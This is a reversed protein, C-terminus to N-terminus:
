QGDSEPVAPLRILRSVPRTYMHDKVKVEASRILGDAGPFVRSIEGIPWSARPLQPDVIMVVTGLQIPSTDRQWKSRTQLTPLYHRIFQTWFRDSLVQCTRWHRQGILESDHYLVQPLSPDLRGMLLLNPTIPDPDALDSSVYGLPKSNLMGEIEILVTQLIEEQVVQSGITSKLAAKISRIEREWSGGFHPASPPNFRFTIQHAALQSQLSPHLANFSEQLEKEGGRFNTGQDCLIETPKGRRSVFRRLAMLFSDSTLSSLVEIHIARTTLCKFLLGWRKEIRRGVKVQMPGFCDIGTSFFAPQNLRLRAIPLDAMKPNVPQARWKQCEPCCRQESRIAERGRLIWYKRRLEAFLREAGPHKLDRDAQRILLKTVPHKPDLVVPHTMAPELDNCRRLRGGVRLLQLSKDYEPALTVLRSSSHVPKGTTLWQIEDPFSDRQASQLLTLEAEKYNEATLNDGTSGQLCKATEKLLDNFSTFKQADPLLCPESTVVLCTASRRQEEAFNNCPTIPHEPWQGQPLQLFSPGCAWRSPCTLDRLRKGRTLDDAPNDSTTVYQWACSDTLEQIEAIRTGVFVKYHCSDSQIWTLVTTSDTWLVVKSLPLTLEKTLLSALQAGTLAACLELRPISLQRKPAVRSRATLFAVEVKGAGDETRLYAVSGYAQQSGDCFIHVEHQSDPKDLEPSVYCRQLSINDLHQLEEEWERWASLLDSPLLPDDWERKRDWLRQVLVKARTTFPVLFGLPDYQSALVRYINRMTPPNSNLPRCKYQLTDSYCMWRLGLAPEQPDVDTQNLWQESNESRLEKPLHAILDPTNSAWQRLEFGAESLVSRLKEVVEKAVDPSSFSQLWNDVYFNKEIADCVDEGQHSHDHIHRQLACIACCPSCTTGFPLVQWEYVKPPTDRQLDRWIFRLLPQDEPLLRVQHFMGKIDSSVAITHERFRLLVGLLSAGLNPGPLLLENLNQERYTFSCNFVVRNKGNHTVMHHPIFWSERSARMKEESVERVYGAAILKTIEAQYAKAKVPDRNLRKETGRLSPLVAVPPVQLTPMDSVRLLPTAYRHVGEIDLRTTKAELLKMAQEERRSRTVLKESRYPMIDLQWLREVQSSLDSQPSAASLFLCQQPQASHRPSPVPGQLVWGLRTKVAAPGGPPGLRVPQIPTVLHPYDSGILILPQANTFSQLPLKRLHRYKQQLAKVPYSHPALGLDDATFAREITFTKSPQTASSVKVTVSEGHLTRLGQRVTRLTLSEATGQLQLKQMAEPLVITRESGDDLIAFTELTHKGNRLLVKSIKLLVQNRGSRRDLYLVDTSPKSGLESVHELPPTPVAASINVEHLAELHKGKCTNCQVKLRCQAAQHHRGCRWCRSNSKIWTSKQEKTLLKFNSCQDLFHLTNNCYPCFATPKGQAESTSPTTASSRQSTADHTSGHLVTTTGKTARKDRKIGNRDRPREEVKVSRDGGEQIILEYELWEAFDRLSPIGSKQPYLYRRFAARLDQPLKRTLRAVHSGCQLEIHGDEGLQELMGVLARLRLAFRRFGTTDSTRINPEDMLEAIRQLSLQHPQGYHKTLSAMMDSYPRLSNSYSDAILLAEEFKLHDCLVQYKFRETADAPLINDLALRLRAFQRPDDKTFEPISPLPGRYLKERTAIAMTPDLTQAPSPMNNDLSLGARPQSLPTSQPVRSQFDPARSVAAATQQRVHLEQLRQSLEQVIAPPPPPPPALQVEQNDPYDGLFPIPPPPIPWEEAVNQTSSVNLQEQQLSSPQTTQRTSIWTGDASIYSDPQQAFQLSTSRVTAVNRDMQRRMDKVM